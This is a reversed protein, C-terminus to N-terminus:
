QHRERYDTVAQLLLATRSRGEAMAKRSIWGDLDPSAKFTVVVSPEAGPAPGLALQRGLPSLTRFPEGWYPAMDRLDPLTLLTRGMADGRFTEAGEDALRYVRLSRADPRLSFPLEAVGISRGDEDLWVARVRAEAGPELFLRLVKWQQKTLPM